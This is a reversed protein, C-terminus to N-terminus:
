PCNKQGKPLFHGPDLAKTQYLFYPLALKWFCLPDLVTYEKLSTLNESLNCTTTAFFAFVVEKLQNKVKLYEKCTSSCWASPRCVLTGIYWQVM